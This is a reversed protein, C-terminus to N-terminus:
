ASRLEAVWERLRPLHEAYHDPGAKRLWAAADPSIDILERTERLFRQHAAHAEAQVMVMPVDKNAALFEANMAEVDMDRGTFTGARVQELVLGAEALWGGVHAVVDKVSWGEEFYGPRLAQPARLSGALAMFEGWGAQEAQLLAELAAEDM